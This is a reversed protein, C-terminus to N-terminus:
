PLKVEETGIRLSIPNSIPREARALGGTIRWRAADSVAPSRGNRQSPPSLKLERPDPSSSSM